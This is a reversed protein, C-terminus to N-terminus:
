HAFCNCAALTVTQLLGALLQGLAAFSTGWYLSSRAQRWLSAKANTCKIFIDFNATFITILHQLQQQHYHQGAVIFVPNTQHWTECVKSCPCACRKHRPMPPFWSQGKCKCGRSELLSHIRRWHPLSGKHASCSPTSLRGDSPKIWAHLFASGLRKAPAHGLLRGPGEGAGKVWSLFLHRESRHSWAEERVQWEPLVGRSVMRGYRDSLYFAEEVGDGHHVDIDVYLVRAHYKLLELIALVLDNVYCFGSAQACLLLLCAYTECMGM